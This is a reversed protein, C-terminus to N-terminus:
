VHARGIEGPGVEALPPAAFGEVTIREGNPVGEPPIIPDVQDHADNSACLVQRRSPPLNWALHPKRPNAPARTPLRTPTACDPRLCPPTLQAALERPPAIPAPQVHPPLPVEYIRLSQNAGLAPLTACTTTYDETGGAASLACPRACADRWCRRVCCDRAHPPRLLM